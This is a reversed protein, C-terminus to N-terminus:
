GRVLAAFRELGTHHARLQFMRGTRRFFAPLRPGPQSIARINITLEGGTKWEVWCWWEGIEFHAETTVYSFGARRPEAIVESVRTMTVGDVWGALGHIRQVIRDNLRLWRSARTAGSVHEIISAPYFDYRMLREAAREFLARSAAPTILHIHRDDHWGRGLLEDGRQYTDDAWEWLQLFRADDRPSLFPFWELRPAIVAWTYRAPTTPDTVTVTRCGDLCPWHRPQGTVTM